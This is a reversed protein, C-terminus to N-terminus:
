STDAVSEALAAAVVIPATVPTTASMLVADRRLLLGIERRADVRASDHNSERVLRRKLHRNRIAAVTRDVLDDDVQLLIV